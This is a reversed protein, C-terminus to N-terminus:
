SVPQAGGRGSGVEREDVPPKTTPAGLGLQIGGVPGSAALLDAALKKRLAERNADNVKSILGGEQVRISEYEDTSFNTVIWRMIETSNFDVQLDVEVVKGVTFGVRTETPIVVLDDVKIDPNLTKFTKISRAIPKGRVEDFDYGVAVCRVKDEILFIATSNNMM